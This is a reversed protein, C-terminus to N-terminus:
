FLGPSDDMSESEIGAKGLTSQNGEDSEPPEVGLEGASHAVPNGDADFGALMTVKREAAGLIAHCDRLYKVGKEYQELSETLNLSGSELQSVIREVEAMAAEFDLTETRKKASKATVSKKKAM